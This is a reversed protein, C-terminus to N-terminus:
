CRPAVKKHHFTGSTIEFCMMVMGGHAAFKRPAEASNVNGKDIMIVTRNNLIAEWCPPGHRM